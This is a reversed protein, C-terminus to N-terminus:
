SAAAVPEVVPEAAAPATPTAEVTEGAQAAPSAPSGDTAGAAAMPVSAGEPAVAGESSSASSPSVPEMEPGAAEAEPTPRPARKEAAKGKALHVLAFLQRGEMRPQQVVTIAVKNELALNPTLPAKKRCAGALAFLALSLVAARRM